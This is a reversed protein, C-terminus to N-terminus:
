SWTATSASRSIRWARTTARSSSDTWSRRQGPMMSGCATGASSSSSRTTPPSSGPISPPAARSPQGAQGRGQPAGPRDRRRDALRSEPGDTAATLILRTGAHNFTISLETSAFASHSSVPLDLRHREEGSTPDVFRVSFDDSALVLTRGDPSFAVSTVAIPFPGLTRVLRGTDVEWIRATRDYSGSALRTGGPDFGVTKVDDTHGELTRLLRGTATDWLRIVKDMGATAFANGDPSFTVDEVAGKHALITMREPDCVAKLYHWEFGRLDDTGAAPGPTHALVLEEIRPFQQNAFAQAGLQMDAIYLSRTLRSNAIATNRWQWFVASLGVVVVVLVIAAPFAFEPRRRGWKVLREFGGTPRAAIPRGALWHELDEALSEASSYRRGPEKDLCKLCITELDRDIWPSLSQPRPPDEDLVRRLIDAVSDGEFPARGTLTEYLTAGLSYVDAATTLAKTQGRAQEPPMYAPTGMVMGTLTVGGSDPAEDIRKALGFDTVYPEGAEDLLINSPKLDRHLIGRQHAYHVARAVKAMLAAAARPDTKLRAVHRSLNGGDILKMSFYPQDGAQGVEYIPVIHPHDLQAM